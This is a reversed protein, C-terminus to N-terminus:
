TSSCINLKRKISEYKDKITEEITSPSAPRENFGSHNFDNRLKRLADYDSAIDKMAVSWATEGKPLGMEVPLMYASTYKATELLAEIVKRKTDDEIQYGLITCFYNKVSEQLITIAQQYLRHNICWGVAVFGNQINRDTDFDAVMERIKGFVPILLEDVSAENDQQLLSQINKLNEDLATMSTGNVINQGRCTEMDKAFDKISFVMRNFADAREHGKKILPASLDYTLASMRDANGNNIFDAVAYTWDQLTSFSQLDVIPSRAPTIFNDNEDKDRGEYNGYLIHVVKAKELFKSYNGLVVVLMPLYRYGHTIDFYLEDGDQILDHITKFIQWIEKENKGEPINPVPQYLFPFKCKKLCSELGDNEKVNGERDKHGNDRWNREEALETLLIYAIDDKTWVAQRQVYQLAAIQIYKEVDSCFKKGRYYRSPFYDTTGLFSIFVKRPM